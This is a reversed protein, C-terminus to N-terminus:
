INRSVLLGKQTYSQFPADPLNHKWSFCLSSFPMSHPFHDPLIHGAEAQDLLTSQFICPGASHIRSSALAHSAPKWHYALMQWPLLSRPYLSEPSASLPLQPNVALVWFGSPAGVWYLFRRNLPEVTICQDALIAERLTCEAWPFFFSNSM